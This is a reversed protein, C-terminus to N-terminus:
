KLEEIFLGICVTELADVLVILVPRVDLVRLAFLAIADQVIADENSEHLLRIGLSDLAEDRVKPNQRCSNASDVVQAHIGEVSGGKGALLKDQEDGQVKEVAKLELAKCESPLYNAASGHNLSHPM